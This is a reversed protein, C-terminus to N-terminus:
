TEGMLNLDFRKYRRILNFDEENRTCIAAGIQLGSLVILAGNFLVSLKSRPEPEKKRIAGLIRGAEDWSAHSPTVVRGAREFRSVVQGVLREGAPDV